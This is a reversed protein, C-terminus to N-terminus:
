LKTARVTANRCKADPLNGSTRRKFQVMMTCHTYVKHQALVVIVFVAVVEAPPTALPLSEVVIAAVLM